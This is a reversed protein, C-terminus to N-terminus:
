FAIRFSRFLKRSQFNIFFQLRQNFGDALFIFKTGLCDTSMQESQITEIKGYGSDPTNELFM